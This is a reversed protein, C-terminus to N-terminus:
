VEGGPHNSKTVPTTLTLWGGHNVSIKSEHIFSSVSVNCVPLTRM